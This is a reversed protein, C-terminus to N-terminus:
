QFRTFKTESNIKVSEGIELSNLIEYCNVDDYYDNVDIVSDEPLEGMINACEEATEDGELNSYDEKMAMELTLREDFEGEFICYAKGSNDVLLVQNYGGNNELFKKM